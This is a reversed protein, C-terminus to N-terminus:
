RVIMKLVEPPVEPHVNEAAGLDITESAGGSLDLEFAGLDALQDTLQVVVRGARDPSTTYVAEDASLRLARTLTLKVSESPGGGPTAVRLALVRADITAPLDAGGPTRKVRVSVVSVPTAFLTASGVWDPIPRSLGIEHTASELRVHTSLPFEFSLTGDPATTVDFPAPMEDAGRLRDGCPVVRVRLKSLGRGELDDITLALSRRRYSPVSGLGAREDGSLTELFAVLDMREVATLSLPKIREDLHANPTGGKDYYAVVDELTALSADHMYPSTRAIDRLSPTKFSFNDAEALTAAGRGLDPGPLRAGRGRGGGGGSGGQGLSGQRSNFGVGTDHFKGDTLAARGDKVDVAHCLSCNAKGRFLDLGRRAAGTLAEERGALFRDLANESTRLTALYAEVADGIREASIATDGYALRFGEDYRRDEALRAAVPTAKAAIVPTIQFGRGGYGDSRVAPTQSMDTRGSAALRAAFRTDAREKAAAAPLVRADILDRVTPFEGDWHFGAGGLDLTPQSHRPLMREEDESRSRPDSFGKEPQHCDACGVRGRRGLAPDLFLRRGLEVKMADRSEAGGNDAGAPLAAAVAAGVTLVMTGTVRLVDRKSM